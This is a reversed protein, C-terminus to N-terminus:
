VKKDEQKYWRPEQSEKYDSFSVFIGLYDNNIVAKTSKYTHALHLM